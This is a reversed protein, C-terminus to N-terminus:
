RESKTAIIIGALILVNFAFYVLWRFDPFNSVKVTSYKVKGNDIEVNIFHYFANEMRLHAGAGGTIFYETGGRKAYNYGHIHSAFVAAPLSSDFFKLLRHRQLINSMVYDNGPRPDFLPKHMFIFFKGPTTKKLEEELWKFQEEGFDDANNDLAIFRWGNHEFSYYSPGFLINWLRRGNHMLDHNGAVGLFVMNKLKSLGSNLIRYQYVRGSNVIDGLDVSFIANNSAARNLIRRFVFYAGRGNAFPSASGRSDGMVAFNFKTSDDSPLAIIFEGQESIDLAFRVGNKLKKFNKFLSDELAEVSGVNDIEFFLRRGQIKKPIIVKIRPYLAVAKIQINDCRVRSVIAGKLELKFGEGSYTGQGAEEGTYLSPGFYLAFHVLVFLLIIVARLLIRGKASIIKLEM